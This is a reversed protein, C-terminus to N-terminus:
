AFPALAESLEQMSQFRDGRDRAMAKAVIAALPGPLDPRIALPPAPSAALVQKLLARRARAVFPPQGTLLEYLIVGAAYVDARHDVDGLVVAQEPATACTVVPGLAAPREAPARGPEDLITALGLDLVVLRDSGDPRRTVLLRELRLGGHVVRKVHIEQMGECLQRALAVARGIALPGERLALEDLTEGELLETVLYAEGGETTGLDHVQVVHDSDIAAGIRAERSLSLAAEASTALEPRLM